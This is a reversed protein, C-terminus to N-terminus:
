LNFHLLSVTNSDVTYPSTPVANTREVSSLSSFRVEDVIGKLYDGSDSGGLYLRYNNSLPLEASLDTRTSNGNLFFYERIGAAPESQYRFHFYYLQGAQLTVSSHTASSNGSKIKFNGGEIFLGVKNTGDSIQFVCQNATVDFPRVNGEVTYLKSYIGSYTGGFSITSSKLRSEGDFCIAANGFKKGVKTLYPEGEFTWSNGSEDMSSFNYWIARLNKEVSPNSIYNM